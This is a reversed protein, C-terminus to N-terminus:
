GTRRFKWRVYGPRFGTSRRNKKDSPPPPHFMSETILTDDNELYRLTEFVGGEVRPKGKLVSRHVTGQQEWWSEVTVLDSDPDRITVITPEFVAQQEDSSAGSSILTRTWSGAPNRSTMTLHQGDQEITDEILGLTSLVVRRFLASQTCNKLYEDYQKKFEDTVVPKWKGSLDTSEAAVAWRTTAAASGEVTMTARELRHHQQEKEQEKREKLDNGTKKKKEITTDLPSSDQVSPSNKKRRFWQSIRGGIFLTRRPRFFSRISSRRRRKKEQRDRRRKKGRREEEKEGGSSSLKDLNNTNDTKLSSLL